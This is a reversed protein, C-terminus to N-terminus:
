EWDGDEDAVEIRDIHEADWPYNSADEDSAEAEDFIYYVKAPAGNIDGEEVWEQPDMASAAGPILRCTAFAGDSNPEFAEFAKTIEAQETITKM